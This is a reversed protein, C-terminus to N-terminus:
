PLYIQILGCDFFKSLEFPYPGLVRFSNYLESFFIAREFFRFINKLNLTDARFCQLQVFVSECNLLLMPVLTILRWIYRHNIVYGIYSVIRDCGYKFYRRFLFVTGNASHVNGPSLKAELGDGDSIFCFLPHFCNKGFHGNYAVQEQNGHAPDETSDVDLILRKKNKRKLLADTSRTIMAHLAEQGSANELINNELLSM